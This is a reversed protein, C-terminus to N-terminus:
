SEEQEKYPKGCFPCYPVTFDVHSVSKKHKGKANKARYFWLVAVREETEGTDADTVVRRVLQLQGNPDGHDRILEREKREICDCAM